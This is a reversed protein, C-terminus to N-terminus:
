ESSMSRYLYVLVGIMVINMFSYLQLMNNTSDAREKTYKVMDKYLTATAQQSSLIKYQESLKKSRTELQSNITNIESNQGQTQELRQVTIENMIQSLDNLKKNLAVSAQLYTQVLRQNTQDTQAYGSKLKNFLQNLAYKYRSDYFCYESKINEIFQKNKNMYAEIGSPQSSVSPPKPIKGAATMTNVFTKLADKKLLSKDDRESDPFGDSPLLGPLTTTGYIAQLDSDTLNTSTNPGCFSM